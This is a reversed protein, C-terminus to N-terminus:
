GSPEPFPTRRRPALDSGDDKEPNTPPRRDPRDPYARMLAMLDSRTPTRPAGISLIAALERPTARWFTDPTWRLRTLCLALLDEWPFPAPALRM